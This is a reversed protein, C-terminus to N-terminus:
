HTGFSYDDELAFVPLADGPHIDPAVFAYISPRDLIAHRSLAIYRSLQGIAELMDARRRWLQWWTGMFDRRECNLTADADAELLKRNREAEKRVIAQRDPLVHQKVYENAARAQAAAAMADDADPSPRDSPESSSWGAPHGAPSGDAPHGRQRESEKHVARRGRGRDGAPAVDAGGVGRVAGEHAEVELQVVVAQLEVM